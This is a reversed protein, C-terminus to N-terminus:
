YGREYGQEESRPDPYEGKKEKNDYLIENLNPKHYNPGKLIKGDERRIPKGNEDMKSMNSRHIEKFVDALYDQMGHEIATGLLIYLMDGLADAIEVPNNKSAAEMYEDNEEKMLKYRLISREYDILRPTKSTDIETADCWQQVCDILEKM